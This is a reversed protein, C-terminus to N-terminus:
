GEHVKTESGVLEDLICKGLLEGKKDKFSAFNVIAGDRSADAICGAFGKTTAVMGKQVQYTEPLGGFYIEGYM